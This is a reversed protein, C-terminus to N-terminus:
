EEFETYSLNALYAKPTVYYHEKFKKVFFSYSSYGVMNSIELLSKDHAQMLIIANRLRQESLYQVLTKKTYKKFLYALRSHSYNTSKIIENVSQSLFELDQMKILLSQLWQPYVIEECKTKSINYLGLIYHLFGLSITRKNDYTDDLSKVLILEQAAKNISIITEMSEHFHVVGQCMNSYLSSSYCNCCQKFEEDTFYLDCHKHSALLYTSSHVHPPGLFYIDGASCTYEKGNINNSISGDIYLVVEWFKHGHLASQGTFTASYMNLPLFVKINNAM